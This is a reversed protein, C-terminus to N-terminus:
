KEDKPFSQSIEILAELKARAKGSDISEQAMELGQKLSGAADGAVLAAASNMLVIDRQPGTM